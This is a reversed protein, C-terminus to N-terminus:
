GIAMGVTAAMMADNIGDGVYLTKVKATEQRVVDLKEEHRRLSSLDAGHLRPSEKVDCGESEPVPRPARAMEVRQCGCSFKRIRKEM